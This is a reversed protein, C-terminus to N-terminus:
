WSHPFYFCPHMMEVRSCFLTKIVGVRLKNLTDKLVHYKERLDQTLTHPLGRVPNHIDLKYIKSSLETM